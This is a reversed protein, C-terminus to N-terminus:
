VRLGTIWWAVRALAQGLAGWRHRNRAESFCQADTLGDIHRVRM